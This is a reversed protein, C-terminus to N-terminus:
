VIKRLHYRIAPPEVGFRQALQNLTFGRTKHLEQIENTRGRLKYSNGLRGLVTRGALIVDNANNLRTDWRLNDIGNDKPGNKGHCGEMGEPCPSVFTELVLRHVLFVREKGDKSFIVQFYIGNWAPSLLREKVSYTRGDIM